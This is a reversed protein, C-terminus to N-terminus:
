NQVREYGASKKIHPTESHSTYVGGGRRKKGGMSLSPYAAEPPLRHGEREPYADSSWRLRVLSLSAVSDDLTAFPQFAYSLM